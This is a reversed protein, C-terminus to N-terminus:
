PKGEALRKELFAATQDWIHRDLGTIMGNSEFMRIFRDPPILGKEPHVWRALAEASAIKGTELDYIPQFYPQIQNEELAFSLQSTLEQDEATRECMENTYSAYCSGGVMNTEVVSSQALAARDCMVSVSLSRDDIEYVGYTSMFTYIATDSILTVESHQKLWETSLMDKPVCFAFHDGGLHGYTGKDGVFSKITDAISRLVRDGTATSFVNNILAFRLVDWYVLVFDEDPRYDLLKRTATFFRRREYMGTLEDIGETVQGENDHRVIELLGIGEGLKDFLPVYECEYNVGDQEFCLTSEHKSLRDYIMEDSPHWSLKADRANAGLISQKGVIGALLLAPENIFSITGDAAVIMLAEDHSELAKAHASLVEAPAENLVLAQAIEQIALNM